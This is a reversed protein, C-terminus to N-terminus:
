TVSIWGFTSALTSSRALRGAHPRVGHADVSDADRLLRAPKPKAVSIRAAHGAWITTLPTNRVPDTGDNSAKSRRPQSAQCGAALTPYKIAYSDDQPGVSRPNTSVPLPILRDPCDCRSRPPRASRRTNIHRAALVHVPGLV